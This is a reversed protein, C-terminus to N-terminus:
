ILEKNVIGKLAVYLGESLVKCGGTGVVMNILIEEGLYSIIQNVKSLLTM